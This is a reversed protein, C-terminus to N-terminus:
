GHMANVPTKIDDRINLKLIADSKRRYPKNLHTTMNITKWESLYIDEGKGM